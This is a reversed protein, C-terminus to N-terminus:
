DDRICYGRLVGRGLAQRLCETFHAVLAEVLSDSQLALVPQRLLDAHRLAYSLLFLVRDIPLKPRIEISLDGTVLVGIDSGPTLDYHGPSGRSPAITLSPVTTRIYDVEDQSLCVLPTTQFEKLRLARAM